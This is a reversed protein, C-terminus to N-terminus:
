SGGGISMLDNFASRFGEGLGITSGGQSQTTNTRRGPLQTPSTLPAPKQPTPRTPQTPSAMVPPKPLAPGPPYVPENAPRPGPQNPPRAVGQGPGLPHVRNGQPQSPSAPQNSNNRNNNKTKAKGAKQEEEEEKNPAGTQMFCCCCCVPVNNPVPRDSKSNEFCGCFGGACCSMKPASCSEGCKFCNGIDTCCENCIYSCASNFCECQLCKSCDCCQRCKDTDCCETLCDCDIKDLCEFKDTVDDTKFDKIKEGGFVEPLRCREILRVRHSKYLNGGLARKIDIFFAVEDYGFREHLVISNM